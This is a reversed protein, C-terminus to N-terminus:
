VESIPIPLSFTSRHMARKQKMINRYVFSDKLILAPQPRLVSQLSGKCHVAVAGQANECLHLFRRLITDNPTSGDIFFLDCHDFGANTFRKGDYIKKNLRVITTVGHKRFYPFYAEPAHLPYGAPASCRESVDDRM